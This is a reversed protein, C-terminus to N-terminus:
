GTLRFRVCDVRTKFAVVPQRSKTRILDSEAIQSKMKEDYVAEQDGALDSGEEDSLQIQKVKYYDLSPNQFCARLFTLQDHKCSTLDFHVDSNLVRFPKAPGEKHAKIMRSTFQRSHKWVQYVANTVAKVQIMSTDQKLILDITSSHYNIPYRRSQNTGRPPVATRIIPRRSSDVNVQWESIKKLYKLKIDKGNCPFLAIFLQAPPSQVNRLITSHDEIIELNLRFPLDDTRWGAALQVQPIYKPDNLLINRVKDMHWDVLSSIDGPKKDAPLEYSHIQIVATHTIQLLVKFRSLVTSSTCPAPM